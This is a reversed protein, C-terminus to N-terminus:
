KVFKVLFQCPLEAFPNKDLRDRARRLHIYALYHSCIIATHRLIRYAYTPM